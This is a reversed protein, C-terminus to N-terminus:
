RQLEPPPPVLRPGGPRVKLGFGRFGRFRLFNLFDAEFRRPTTKAVKSFAEDFPQGQRLGRMVELVLADGHRRLLFKVAHFSLGYVSSFAARSLRDADKFVDLEPNAIVWDALDELSPLGVGQEATVLAMGERFWLPIDKTTWDRATGSRQFLLCHTLEHLVLEEVQGDNPAWTSPAQFYLEDYKAWARLWDFGRRGVARELADHTPTVHLTVPVELGGWRDLRSAVREIASRVRREDVSAGPESRLEVRVAGVAASTSRTLSALPGACGSAVVILAWAARSM